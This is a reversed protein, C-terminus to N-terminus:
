YTYKSVHNLWCQLKMSMFLLIAIISIDLILMIECLIVRKIIIFKPVHERAATRQGM